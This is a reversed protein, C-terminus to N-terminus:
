GHGGGSVLRRVAARAIHPWSRPAAPDHCDLRFRPRVEEMWDRKYPDDGTGFDILDVGDQDIVHQFLAATLITGASLHLTDPCHALKHIWATGAEVTWFQAAVARGEHRAIGLRLRGVEGEAEAFARLFAPDGEAPKWSSAYIEEYFNWASQEFHEMIQTDIHKRKRKLTTRLPGPRTALYDAFKRGNVSLVHNSDCRQREVKWGVKLFAAELLSASGDEDPLPWLTVRSCRSRLDRALARALPIRNAKTDSLPRWIFSYWGQVPELRGNVQKLVLAMTGEDGTAVAILPPQPSTQVLLAFWDARDFPGASALAMDRLVNVKDHYSIAIV